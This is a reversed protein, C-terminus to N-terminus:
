LGDDPDLPIWEGQPGGFAGLDNRSGDPDAHVPDPDGSDRCPSGGALRYDDSAPDLFRPDSDM